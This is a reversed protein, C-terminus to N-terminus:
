DVLKKIAGRIDIDYVINHFLHLYETGINLRKAKKHMTYMFEFTATM